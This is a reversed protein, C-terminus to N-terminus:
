ELWREVHLCVNMGVILLGRDNAGTARHIVGSRSAPIDFDTNAGSAMGKKGSLLLEDVRGSADFFKRAPVTLGQEGFALVLLPWATGEGRQDM